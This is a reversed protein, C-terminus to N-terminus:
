RLAEKIQELNSEMASLYSLGAAAEQDTVSQLPELLLIKRDKSQTNEIITKALKLDSGKLAIVCPLSLEDLKQALGAVTAFSAESEASCGSFAAYCTLGYDEALYRFPYRDGFLLTKGPLAAIEKAYTEDLARVKALYADANDRYAKEGDPDLRILADRIGEVCVAARRLSLWVHEDPEHEEEGDDDHDNHDEHAADEEHGDHGDNGHHHEGHEAGEPDAEELVSDGLLSMMDLSVARAGAAGSFAEGVWADSPGGVYLFLDSQTAELVEKVGPQFSHLDVGSKMLMSVDARDGAIERAWDYLPFVTVVVKLREHDTNREPTSEQGGAQGCGAFASALLVLLLLLAAIRKM